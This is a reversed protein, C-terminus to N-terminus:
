LVICEIHPNNGKVQADFAITTSDPSWSCWGVGSDQQGQQPNYLSQADTDYALATESFENWAFLVILFMILLTIIISRPRVQPHSQLGFRIGM